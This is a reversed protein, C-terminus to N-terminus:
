SNPRIRPVNRDQLCQNRIEFIDRFLSQSIKVEVEQVQM